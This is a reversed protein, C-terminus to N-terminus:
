RISLIVVGQHGEDYPQLLFFELFPHYGITPASPNNIFQTLPSPVPPESGEAFQPHAVYKVLRM